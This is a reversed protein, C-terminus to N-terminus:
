PKASPSPSPSPSPRPKPTPKPSPTPTPAPTPTPSPGLIVNVQPNRQRWGSCARMYRDYDLSARSPADVGDCGCADIYAWYSDSARSPPNTCEQSSAPGALAVTLSLLALVRM